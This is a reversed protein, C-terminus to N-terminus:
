REGTKGTVAVSPAKSPEEPYKPWRIHRAKLLEQLKAVVFRGPDNLEGIDKTRRILPNNADNVTQLIDEVLSTDGGSAHFHTLNRQFWPQWHQGRIAALKQATREAWAAPTATTTTTTTPLRPPPAPMLQEILQELPSTNPDLDLPTRHEPLPPASGAWAQHPKEAANKPPSIPPKIKKNERDETKYRHIARAYLGEPNKKHKEHDTLAPISPTLGSPTEPAHTGNPETQTLPQTVNPNPTPNGNPKQHPETKTSKPRGGLAGNARNAAIRAQDLSWERYMRRCVIADPPLNAAVRAGRTFVHHKELDAVARTVEEVTCRTLRALDPLDGTIVGRVSAQWMRNLIEMWVGRSEASCLTLGNDSIWRNPYWMMWEFNDPKRSLPQRKPM